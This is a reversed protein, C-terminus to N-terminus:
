CRVDEVLRDLGGKTPVFLAAILMIKGSGGCESCIHNGCFMYQGHCEPCDVRLWQTKAKLKPM